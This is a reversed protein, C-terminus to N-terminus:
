WSLWPYNSLYYWINAIGVLIYIGFVRLVIKKNRWFLCVILPILYLAFAFALQLSASFMSVDIGRYSLQYLFNYRAAAITGVQDSKSDSLEQFWCHIPGLGLARLLPEGSSEYNMSFPVYEDIYFYASGDGKWFHTDMGLKLFLSNQADYFYCYGRSGIFTDNNLIRIFDEKTKCAQGNYTINSFLDNHAFRGQEDIFLTLDHSPLKAIKDYENKVPMFYGFFFCMFLLLFCVIVSSLATIIKKKNPM